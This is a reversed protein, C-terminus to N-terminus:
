GWAAATAVADSPSVAVAALLRNAVTAQAEVLAKALALPVAGLRGGAARGAAVDQSKSACCLPRSAMAARRPIPSKAPAILVVGRALGGGEASAAGGAIATQLAKPM